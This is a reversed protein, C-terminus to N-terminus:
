FITSREMAINFLWITDISSTTQISFLLSWQSPQPKHLYDNEFLFLLFHRFADVWTTNPINPIGWSRLDRAILRKSFWPGSYLIGPFQSFFKVKGEVMWHLGMIRLTKYNWGSGRCLMVGSELGGVHLIVALPPSRWVVQALIVPMVPPGSAFWGM